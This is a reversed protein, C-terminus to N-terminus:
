GLILQLPLVPPPLPSHEVTVSTPKVLEDTRRSTLQNSLRPLQRPAWFYLFTFEVQIECLACFIWLPHCFLSLSWSFHSLLLMLSLSQLNIQTPHTLTAQVLTTGKIKHTAQRVRQNPKVKLMHFGSSLMNGAMLSHWTRLRSLCVCARKKGRERERERERASETFQFHPAFKTAVSFLNL